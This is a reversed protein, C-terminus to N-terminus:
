YLQITKKIFKFIKLGNIEDITVKINNKLKEIINPLKNKILIEVVPNPYSSKIEDISHIKPCYRCNKERKALITCKECANGGCSLVKANKVIHVDDGICCVIGNDM